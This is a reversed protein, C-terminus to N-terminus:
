NTYDITGIDTSEGVSVQVDSITTDQYSTNTPIIAVNYTGGTLGVLTFEGSSTDAKTTAVTDEGAVAYVWPKTDAPNVTGSINGTLAKNEATIVPKLLYGNNHKANGRRVVSRSADFDLMLTYTIGEKIEANVNLKIGTQQGSPVKLQYTQDNVTVSNNDGLILRIQHYVGSDLNISGLEEFTGNVLDLLNVRKPTDMINHWGTTDSESKVEVKQIDVMVKQYSAPADHLLVKLKGKSQGGSNSVDCSALGITLTLLGAM